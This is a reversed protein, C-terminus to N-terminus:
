RVWCYGFACGSITVKQSVAFPNNEDLAIRALRSRDRPRFMNQFEAPLADAVTLIADIRGKASHAGGKVNVAMGESINFLYDDPLYALVYSRGGNIQMLEDGFKVIQGPIPVKTGVIGPMSARLYGNDYIGNLKDIAERFITRSQQLLNLEYETASKESQLQAVREAAQLSNRLADDKSLSSIIGRGSVSDFQSATMRTESATREALPSVAEFAALKGRLQGERISLDSNRLAFNALEQVIEFSELRLLQTGAEVQEGEKVYVDVVKGAYSAGVSYRDKLVTGDISLVFMGGILYYAVSGLFLVVLALYTMRGLRGSSSRKQADLVDIRPPKRLRKM